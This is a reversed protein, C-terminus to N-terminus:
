PFTYFIANKEYYKLKHLINKYTACLLINFATWGRKDYGFQTALCPGIANIEKIVGTTGTIKM